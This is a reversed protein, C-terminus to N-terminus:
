IMLAAYKLKKLFLEEKSERLKKLDAENMLFELVAFATIM